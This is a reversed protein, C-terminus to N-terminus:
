PRAESTPCINRNITFFTLITYNQLFNYLIFPKGDKRDLEYPFERQMNESLRPESYQPNEENKWTVKLHKIGSNIDDNGCITM